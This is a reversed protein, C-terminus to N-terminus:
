NLAMCRVSHPCPPCAPLCAPPCTAPLHDTPLSTTAPVCSVCTTLLVSGYTEDRRV